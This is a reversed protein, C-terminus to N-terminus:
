MPFMRQWYAPGQIRGGVLLELPGLRRRRAARTSDGEAREDLAVRGVDSACARDDRQIIIRRRKHTDDLLLHSARLYRAM